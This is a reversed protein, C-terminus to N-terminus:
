SGLLGRRTKRALLDAVARAVTAWPIGASDAYAKLWAETHGFAYAIHEGQAETNSNSIARPQANVAGKKAYSAANYKAKPSKVGHMVSRHIRLGNISGFKAACDSCSHPGDTTITARPKAITRDYVGKPM